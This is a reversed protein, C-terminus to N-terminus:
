EDWEGSLVEDGADMVGRGLGGLFALLLRRELASGPPATDLQTVPQPEGGGVTGCWTGWCTRAATVPGPPALCVLRLDQLSHQFM